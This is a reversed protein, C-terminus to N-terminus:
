ITMASEATSLQLSPLLKRLRDITIPDLSCHVHLTRLGTCREAVLLLARDLDTVPLTTVDLTLLSQAYSDSMIDLMPYLLMYTEIVVAKVPINPKM